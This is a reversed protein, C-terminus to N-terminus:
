DRELRARGQCCPGARGQLLMDLGMPPAPWLPAGPHCAVPLPWLLMLRAQLLLKGELPSAGRARQNGPLHQLYLNHLATM